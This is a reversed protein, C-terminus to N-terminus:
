FEGIVVSVTAITGAIGSIYTQTDVLYVPPVLGRTLCFGAGSLCALVGLWKLHIRRKESM